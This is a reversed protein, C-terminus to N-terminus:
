GDLREVIFDRLTAVTEWPSKGIAADDALNIGYHGEETLTEEVGTLITILELSDVAPYNVTEGSERVAVQHVAAGFGGGDVHKQFEGELGM